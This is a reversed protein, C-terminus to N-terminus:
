PPTIRRREGCVPCSPDRGQSPWLYVVPMGTEAALRDALSRGQEFWRRREDRTPDPRDDHLSAFDPGRQHRDHWDAWDQLAAGLDTSLGLARAPLNGHVERAPQDGRAPLTFWGWVPFAGYDPMVDLRRRDEPRGHRCGSAHLLPDDM